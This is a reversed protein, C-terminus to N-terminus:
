SLLSEIYPHATCSEIGNFVVGEWGYACAGRAYVDYDDFFLPPQDLAGMRAACAEFFAAKPKAVGLDSAYFIDDFWNKFGVEEWLYTSRVAENNTAIYLKVKGSARLKKVIEILDLDVNADRALWYAVFDDIRGRFGITPLIAALAERLGIKGTLVQNVFVDAFFADTLAQQSIGFDREMDADWRKRKEHHPGWNQLLVGDMDFLVARM